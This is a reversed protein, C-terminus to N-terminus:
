LTTPHCEIILPLDVRDSKRAPDKAFKDFVSDGLGARVHDIDLPLDAWTRGPGDLGNPLDTVSLTVISIGDTRPDLDDLTLRTTPPSGTEFNPAEFHWTRSGDSEEVLRALAFDFDSPAPPSGPPSGTEGREILVVDRDALGRVRAHTVDVGAERTVEAALISKGVSLTLRVFRTGAAGPFRARIEIPFNGDGDPDGMAASASGDNLDAGGEIPLYNFIRKVYLRKGGNNFFANVGHWMYNTYLTTDPLTGDAAQIQDKDAWALRRGDGYTREFDQLSTLVEPEDAIPGYVTPGVFGTTTTSVGEISKSRFSTEEVYVGPALYEPM